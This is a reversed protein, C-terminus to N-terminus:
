LTEKFFKRAHIYPGKLGLSPLYKWLLQLKMLRQDSSGFHSVLLLVGTKDLFVTVPLHFSIFRNTLCIRVQRKLSQLQKSKLTEKLDWTLMQKDNQKLVGQQNHSAGLLNTNLSTTSATQQDNAEVWFLLWNAAEDSSVKLPFGM